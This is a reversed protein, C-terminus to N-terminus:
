NLFGRCLPLIGKAKTAGRVKNLARSSGMARRDGDRGWPELFIGVGRLFLSRQGPALSRFSSDETTFFFLFFFSHSPIYRMALAHQTDGGAAARKKM